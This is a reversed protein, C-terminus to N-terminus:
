HISVHNWLWWILIPVGIVVGLTAAGIAFLGVMALGALGEFGKFDGPGM